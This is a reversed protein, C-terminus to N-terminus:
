AADHRAPRPCSPHAVAAPPPVERLHLVDDETEITATEDARLHYSPTTPTASTSEAPQINEFYSPLRAYEISFQFREDGGRSWPRGPSCTLTFMRFYVALDLYAVTQASRCDCPLIM